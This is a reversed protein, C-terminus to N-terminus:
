DLNRKSNMSDKIKLILELGETTLHRKEKIVEAAKLFDLYDLHKVGQITHVNFFPLITEIITSFNVVRFVFANRNRAVVGVGLFQAIGRMLEEDREHQSLNFELQIKKKLRHGPSNLARIM